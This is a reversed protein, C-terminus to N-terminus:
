LVEIEDAFLWAKSGAGPNAEPNNGFNKIEIEPLQILTKIGYFLGKEDGEIQIDIKGAILKYGEKASYNEEYLIFIETPLDYSHSDGDVFKTIQYKDKLYSNLFTIGSIGNKPADNILLRVPQKIILYGTDKKIEVPPPVINIQQATVALSIIM